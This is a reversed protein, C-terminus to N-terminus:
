GLGILQPPTVEQSLLNQLSHDWFRPKSPSILKHKIWSAWLTGSKPDNEVARSEPALQGQLTLSLASMGLQEQLAPQHGKAFTFPWKPPYEKHTHTHKRNTSGATNEFAENKPLGFPSIFLPKILHKRPYSKFPILLTCTVGM